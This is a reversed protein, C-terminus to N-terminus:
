YKNFEPMREFMSTPDAPALISPAMIIGGMGSSTEDELEM